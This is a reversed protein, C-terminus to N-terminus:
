YLYEVKNKFIGVYFKEVRNHLHFINWPLVLEVLVTQNLYTHEVYLNDVM